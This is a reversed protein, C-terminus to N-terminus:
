SVYFRELPKYVVSHTDERLGLDVTDLQGSSRLLFIRSASAGLRVSVLLCIEDTDLWVTMRDKDKALLTSVPDHQMHRLAFGLCYLQGVPLDDLNEKSLSNWGDITRM